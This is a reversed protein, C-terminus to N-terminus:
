SFEWLLTRTRAPLTAVDIRPVLWSQEGFYHEGDSMIHETDPDFKAGSLVICGKPATNPSTDHM